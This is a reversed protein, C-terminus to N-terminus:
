NRSYAVPRTAWQPSDSVSSGAIIRRMVWEDVDSLAVTNMEDDDAYQRIEVDAGISMSLRCDSKLNEDTYQPNDISWQWLMPLRRRRLQSLNGIGQHPVRGGLSIVGAFRDPDRFAIRQALSGGERYGALVIRSAHISFRQSAEEIAECVADHAADIAAPSHHWDFQHGVSDAARTGRIGIGIYNRLSIHPMVSDIQHENFGNNHFWVLAPYAYSATYHLPLFFSRPSGHRPWFGATSLSEDSVPEEPDRECWDAASSHEPPTHDDASPKSKGSETPFNWSMSQHFRDM